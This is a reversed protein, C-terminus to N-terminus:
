STVWAGPRDDSEPLSYGIVHLEDATALARAAVAWITQMEPLEVRKLYSPHLAIWPPFPSGVPESLDQVCLPDGPSGFDMFKLFKADHLFLQKREGVYWGVSGHLKLLKVPSRGLTM